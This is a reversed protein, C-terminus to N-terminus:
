IKRFNVVYIIYTGFSTGAYFLAATVTQGTRSTLTEHTFVGPRRVPRVVPRRVDQM